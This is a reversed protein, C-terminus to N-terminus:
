PRMPVCLRVCVLACACVFVFLRVKSKPGHAGAKSGKRLCEHPSMSQLRTPNLDTGRSTHMLFTYMHVPHCIFIHVLSDEEIRLCARVCECM